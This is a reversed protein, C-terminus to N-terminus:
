RAHWRGRPVLVTFPSRSPPPLSPPAPSHRRPQTPPRRPMRRRPPPPTRRPDHRAQMAIKSTLDLSAPLAAIADAYALRTCAQLVEQFSIQGGHDPLALETLFVMQQQRTMVVGGHRKSAFGIPERM